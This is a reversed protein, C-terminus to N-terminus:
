VKDKKGEIGPDLGLGCMAKLPRQRRLKRQDACTKTKM